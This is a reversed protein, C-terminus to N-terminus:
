LGRRWRTARRNTPLTTASHRAGRDIGPLRREAGERKGTAARRRKRTQAGRARPPRARPGRPAGRARARPGRRAARRAARGRRGRSRRRRRRRGGGRGPSGSAARRGARASGRGRGPRVERPGVAVERRRREGPRDEVLDVDARERGLPREGGRDRVEGAQALQAHGRDLQHREGLEGAVVAPAVVADVEVRGVRGVAGRVVERAEDVGGVGLAERDDEVDDVVVEAGGAHLRHLGEAGVQRVLVRRRPALRHVEVVGARVGDALPDELGGLAPDAVEVEVAQAEVRDVRQHVGARLVEDGREGAAHVRDVLARDHDGFRAHVVGLHHPLGGVAAPAAVRGPGVVEVVRQADRERALGVAPVLLEAVEAREGLGEM